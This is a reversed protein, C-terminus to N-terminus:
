KVGMYRKCFEDVEKVANKWAEDYSGGHRCYAHFLMGRREDESIPDRKFGIREMGREAMREQVTEHMAISANIGRVLRELMDPNLKESVTTGVPFGTNLQINGVEGLTFQKINM